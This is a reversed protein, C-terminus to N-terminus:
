LPASPHVQPGVPAIESIPPNSNSTRESTSVAPAALPAGVFLVAVAPRVGIARASPWLPRSSRVALAPMRRPPDADVYNERFYQSKGCTPQPPTGNASCVIADRSYDIYMFARRPIRKPTVHLGSITQSLHALPQPKRVPIDLLGAILQGALVSARFKYDTDATQRVDFIAAHRRCQVLQVRKARQILKIYELHALPVLNRQIFMQPVPKGPARLFRM